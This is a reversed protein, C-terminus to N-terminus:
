VRIVQGIPVPADTTCIVVLPYPPESTPWPTFGDTALVVVQPEFQEAYELPVRMDTGGGGKPVLAITEGEEFVQEGAVKTDAWLIRVREPRLQEAIACAESGYRVLEPGSISGSTDGIFVVEGMKESHRGPLYTSSFRRNRRTWTEDDRVIRTMYDQLVTTWPIVPELMETILRDLAGPMKGAMRAMSAAQAVRQAIKRSQEAQTAQDGGDEPLQLDWGTNSPAGEAPTQSGPKQPQGTGSQPDSPDGAGPQPQPKPRKSKQQYLRDYIQMATLGRYQTDCYGREYMPMGADTLVLNICHDTAENWTERDLKLRQMTPVHQFAIHLVEHCFIMMIQEVPLEDCGDPNILIADGDTAMRWLSPDIKLPSAMLIGAFFPHELLLKMRATKVSKPLAVATTRM